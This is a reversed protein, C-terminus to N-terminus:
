ISKCTPPWDTLANLSLSKDLNTKESISVSHEAREPTMASSMPSPDEALGPPWPPQCKILTWVTSCLKSQDKFDKLISKKQWGWDMCSSVSAWDRTFTRVRNGRLLSYLEEHWETDTPINNWKTPSTQRRLCITILGSSRVYKKVEERKDSGPKWSPTNETIM